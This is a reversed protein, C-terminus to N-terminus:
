RHVMGYINGLAAKRMRGLYVRQFGFPSRESHAMDLNMVAWLREFPHLLGQTLRELMLTLEGSGM